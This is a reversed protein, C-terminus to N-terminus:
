EGDEDSEDEDDEDEQLFEEVDVDDEDLYRRGLDDLQYLSQADPHKKLMGKEELTRMRRSLQSYSPKDGQSYEPMADPLEVYITKPPVALRNDDFWDMIIRDVETMWPVRPRM